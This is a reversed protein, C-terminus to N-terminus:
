DTYDIRQIHHRFDIWINNQEPVPFKIVDMVVKPISNDLPLKRITGDIDVPVEVNGIALAKREISVLNTVTNTETLIVPYKTIMKLFTADGGLRDKQTFVVQLVVLSAGKKYANVIIRGLQDRKWPWQGKKELAADSIDILVISKSDYRDGFTQYYDFTKLQLTQLPQPDYAKLGVLLLVTIVVAWTSTLIKSM